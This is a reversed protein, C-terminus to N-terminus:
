TVMDNVSLIASLISTIISAIVVGLIITMLPTLLTMFRDVSRQVERDYIEATKLLMSDLQGTEEGIKVMQLSLAPFIKERALATSLVEGERVRVVVDKMASIFVHNGFSESAISIATVPTVSNSLLVGLMNCFKATEIKVIIAGVRPLRLLYADRKIKVADKRFAHRATVILLGVAFLLFLGYDRLIHGASMVIKTSLPLADRASEFLPEFQPLVFLLILAISLVAMGLVITPYLMASSISDQVKQTRKLSETMRELTAELVRAGGAEGARIMGIYGKPLDVGQAELADAFGSGGRILALVKNLFQAIHPKEVVSALVSLSKELPLGSRLMITLEQTLFVVDNLPFKKSGSSKLQKFQHLWGEIKKDVSLPTYGLGYLYDVVADKSAADLEGKIIEASFNTAEYSYLSM